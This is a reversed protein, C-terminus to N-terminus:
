AEYSSTFKLVDYIFYFPLAAEEASIDSGFLYYALKNVSEMDLDDRSSEENPTERLLRTVVQEILDERDNVNSYM